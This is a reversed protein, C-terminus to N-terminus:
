VGKKLRLEISGDANTTRTAVFGKKEAEATAKVVGYRQLLKGGDSGIANLISQGSAGFFDFLMRYGGTSSDKLLGIEWYTGPVGIAHSCHGLDEVRIGIPLPHDGVHRGFWAYTRQDRKFTLGMEACAAELAALDHIQTEISVVHSM